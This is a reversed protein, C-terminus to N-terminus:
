GGYGGIGANNVLFDVRRFTQQMRSAFAAVSTWETVDCIAGEGRGGSSNIRRATAELPALQRGCIITTAGLGAIRTAIAAGIGRGGGTVVAIKGELQQDPM